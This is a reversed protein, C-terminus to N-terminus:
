PECWRRPVWERGLIGPHITWYGGLHPPRQLHEALTGLGENALTCLSNTWWMTSSSTSPCFSLCSSLLSSPSYLSSLPTTSSLWFLCMLSHLHSMVRSTRVVFERSSGRMDTNIMTFFHSFTVHSTHHECSRPVQHGPSSPGPHRKPLYASWATSPKCSNTEAGCSSGAVCWHHTAPSYGVTGSRLRTRFVVPSWTMSWLFRNSHSWILSTDDPLAEGQGPRGCSPQTPHRDRMENATEPYATLPEDLRHMGQVAPGREGSSDSTRRRFILWGRRWKPKVCPQRTRTQTQSPEYIEGPHAGTEKWGSAIDECTTLPVNAATRNARETGASCLGLHRQRLPRGSADPGLRSCVSCVLFSSDTLWKDLVQGEQNGTSHVDVHKTLRQKTTWLKKAMPLAAPGHASNHLPPSRSAHNRPVPSVLSLLYAVALPPPPPRPRSCDWLEEWQWQSTNATERRRHRSRPVLSGLLPPLWSRTRRPSASCATSPTM